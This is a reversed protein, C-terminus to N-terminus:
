STARGTTRPTEMRRQCTPCNFSRDYEKPGIPQLDEFEQLTRAARRNRVVEGFSGNQILVGYCHRCYCAEHGDVEGIQMPKACCPCDCAAEKALPTIGDTTLPNGHPFVLSQCFSCQLYKRGPVECATGGCQSCQTSYEPSNQKPAIVTSNRHRLSTLFRSVRRLGLVCQSWEGHLSTM